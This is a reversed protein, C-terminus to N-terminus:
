LGNKPTVVFGREKGLVADIVGKALPFNLVALVFFVVPLFVLSGKKNSKVSATVLEFFYGLTALIIAVWFAVSPDLWRNV